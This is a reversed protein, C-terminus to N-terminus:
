FNYQLLLHLSLFSCCNHQNFFCSVIKQALGQSLEKSRNALDKTTDDSLEKSRNALGPFKLEEFEAETLKESLEKSRNAIDKTPDNSLEKSRNALWVTTRPWQQM